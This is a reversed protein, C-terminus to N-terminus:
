RAGRAARAAFRTWGSLGGAPPDEGHGNPQHDGVIMGDNEVPQCL